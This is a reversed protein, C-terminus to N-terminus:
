RTKRAEDFAAEVLGAATWWRDSADLLVILVKTGDRTAAIVACKGAGPTYGSKVGNVGPASGLLKNGTQLPIRRGGGTEVVVSERGVIGAIEPKAMAAEAIRVLDHASSRQKPDDHGCPNAFTTASLGMAKARANMKAVFGTSSGGAHEALAECADNASAVLMAELLAGATLREGTRLGARSGTAAAASKSVVVEANPDWSDGVAVLASMMKTLSAPARPRDADKEWVIRGEIAVAYSAAAKPFRDIPAAGTSAAGLLLALIM